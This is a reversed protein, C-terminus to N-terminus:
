RGDGLLEAVRARVREAITAPAADGERLTEATVTEGFTV